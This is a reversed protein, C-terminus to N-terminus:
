KPVEEMSIQEGSRERDRRKRAETELERPISPPAIYNFRQRDGDFRLAMRGLRGTKNKAVYLHRTADAADGIRYLLAIVDADQELQGSERLSSITPAPTKGDKTKPPRTLQSLEIVLIKYRRAMVALAKSIEALEEQRTGGRRATGPSILQVYDLAIVKFGRALTVGLIDAATMGAAEVIQLNRKSIRVSEGTVSRWADADMTSRVVDSFQLDPVAQTVIRDMLKATSTEFSFIGVPLDAAIQWCWQLMLATKGDSPYGGLVMVDGLDVALREDLERLGFRVFSHAGQQHREYFDALATSMDTVAAAQEVAATQADQLIERAEDLTAAGTLAAGLSALRSLRSQEKCIRIYAAVNAATPTESMIRVIEDRYAPGLKALVTVADVPQGSLKLAVITEFMTRSADSLDEPRLESMILPVCSSDILAAGIVSQQARAWDGASVM